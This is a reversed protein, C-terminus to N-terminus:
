QGGHDTRISGLPKRGPLPRPTQFSVPPCGSRQGRRRRCVPRVPAGNERCAGARFARAAPLLDALPQRFSVHRADGHVRRAAQKDRRPEAAHM